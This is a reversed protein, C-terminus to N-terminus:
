CRVFHNKHNISFCNADCVTIFVEVDDFASVIRNSYTHLLESMEGRLRAAEADLTVTTLTQTPTLQTVVVYNSSLICRCYLGNCEGKAQSSLGEVSKEIRNVRAVLLDLNHHPPPNEVLVPGEQSFSASRSLKKKLNLKQPSQALSTTASDPSFSTSRSTRTVPKKGFM